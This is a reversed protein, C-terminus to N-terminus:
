RARARGRCVAGGGPRAALLRCRGFPAGLRVSSVSRARSGFCVLSARREPPDTRRVSGLALRPDHGPVRVATADGLSTVSVRRKAFELLGIPGDKLALFARPVLMVLM